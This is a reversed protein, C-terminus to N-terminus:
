AGHDEQQKPDYLPHNPMNRQVDNVGSVQGTPDHARMAQQLDAIAEHLPAASIANGETKIPVTAEVPKEEAREQDAQPIPRVDRQAAAEKAQLGKLIEAHKEPTKEEAAEVEPPPPPTEVVPAAEPREPGAAGPRPPPM